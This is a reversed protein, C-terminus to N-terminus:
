RIIKKRKIADELSQKKTKRIASVRNNYFTINVTKYKFIRQGTIVKSIGLPHGMIKQVQAISMGLKILKLKQEETKSAPRYSADIFQSQLSGRTHTIITSPFKWTALNGSISTPNGYKKNLTGRVVKGSTSYKIIIKFLVANGGTFSLRKSLVRGKTYKIILVFPSESITLAGIRAKKMFRAKVNAKTQGWTASGHGYIDRKGFSYGFGTLSLFLIGVLISKFVRKM